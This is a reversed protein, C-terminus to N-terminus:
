QQENHKECVPRSTWQDEKKNIEATSLDFSVMDVQIFLRATASAPCFFCRAPWKTYHWPNDVHPSYMFPEKGSSM